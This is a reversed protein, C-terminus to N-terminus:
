LSLCHLILGLYKTGNIGIQGICLNVPHLIGSPKEFDDDTLGDTEKAYKFDNESIRAMVHALFGNMDTLTKEPTTNWLFFAAFKKSEPCSRLKDAKQEDM